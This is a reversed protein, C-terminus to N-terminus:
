FLRDVVMSLLLEAPTGQEIEREDWCEDSYRYPQFEWREASGMFRLPGLPIHVTSSRTIPPRPGRSGFEKGEVEVYLYGQQPVIFLHHDMHYGRKKFEGLLQRTGSYVIEPPITTKGSTGPKKSRGM